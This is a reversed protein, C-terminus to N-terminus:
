ETNETVVSIGEAGAKKALDMVKVVRGFPVGEDSRLSIERSATGAFRAALAEPLSELSLAQDNLHVTGDQLLWVVVKPEEEVQGTEAKPLNLQLIPKAYISTLMFFILLLFVVDIMPTLDITKRQPVHEGFDIL